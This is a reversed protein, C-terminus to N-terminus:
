GCRVADFSNDSFPLKEFIGSVFASNKSVRIKAARLMIMIPDFLVISNEPFRSLVLESMVGPGCGADLIINGNSIGNRIGLQRYATDQWLSIVRNVKDYVDAIQSLM